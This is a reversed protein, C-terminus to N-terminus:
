LTSMVMCIQREMTTTTKKFGQFCSDFDTKMGDEPYKQM